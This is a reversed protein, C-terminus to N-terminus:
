ISKRLQNSGAVAGELSKKADPEIDEQKSTGANTEPVKNADDETGSAPAKSPSTSAKATGSKKTKDMDDDDKDDDKEFPFGKKIAWSEAQTLKGGKAIKNAILQRPDEGKVIAVEGPTLAKSKAVKNALAKKVGSYDTGNDDISDSHEDQDTQGTGAWTGPNSDSPTHYLQSNALGELRCLAAHFEDRNIQSM